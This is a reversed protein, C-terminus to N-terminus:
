VHARGIEEYASIVPALAVVEVKDMSIGGVKGLESKIWSSSVAVLKARNCFVRYLVERMLRKSVSFYHPFEKHQLDHPHYISPVRTLFAVQHTFHMIDIKAKEITGDSWLGKIGWRESVPYIKQTFSYIRPASNKLGRRLRSSPIARSCHLLRCAGFVYPRIWGDANPYALFYYEEPGDRLQSLGHALGIVFVEVVGLHIFLIGKIM